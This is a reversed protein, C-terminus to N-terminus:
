DCHMAESWFSGLASLFNKSGRALDGKRLCWSHSVESGLTEAVEALTRHDLDRRSLVHDVTM